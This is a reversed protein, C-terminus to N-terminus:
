CFTADLCHIQCGQSHCQRFTPGNTRKQPMRSSRVQADSCAFSWDFYDVNRQNKTPVKLASYDIETLSSLDVMLCPSRGEADVETAENLAQRFKEVGPFYLNCDAKVIVREETVENGKMVCGHIVITFFLHNGTLKRTTKDVRSATSQGHLSVLAFSSWSRDSHRIGHQCLSLM